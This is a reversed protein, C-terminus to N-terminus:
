HPITYTFNLFLDLKNKETRNVSNADEMWTHKRDEEEM